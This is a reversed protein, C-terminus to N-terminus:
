AHTDLAIEKAVQAKKEEAIRAQEAEYRSIKVEEPLNSEEISQSVMSFGALLILCILLTRM